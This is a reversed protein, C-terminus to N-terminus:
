GGGALDGLESPAHRGLKAYEADLAACVDAPTLARDRARLAAGIVVNRINGGPLDVAAALRDITVADLSGPSLHALWLARREVGAPLPFELVADLRRLFAHDFRAKSNSTLVAVGDFSELRTLLYNTQQNAFRDNAQKVDTRAGFMADAEDFLLICDLHEAEGLLQALNKETEGIYKSTVNAADVRLLPKGLRHALWQVALTKGTGSAGTLLAKVGPHARARVAVGLGDLLSERRRCREVLLDIERALSPPMVLADDAIDTNLRQALAGFRRAARDFEAAVATEIRGADVDGRATSPWLIAATRNLTGIGARWRRALDRAAASGSKATVGLVEAREDARPLSPKWEQWEGTGTQLDAEPSAAVLLPGRYHRWPPLAIREGPPSDIVLLPVHRSAILWPELGAPVTAGAGVIEIPTLGAQDAALIALSRAEDVDGSRVVFTSPRRGTLSPLFRSLDRHWAAPLLWDPVAASRVTADDFRLAAPPCTDSEFLHPLLSPHLSLTRHIIAGEDRSLRFTASDVGIGAVLAGLRRREAEAAGGDLITWLRAVLGLTPRMQGAAGPSSQLRQLQEIVHADHEALLALQGAVLELDTLSLANALRIWARESAGPQRRRAAILSEWSEPLRVPARSSSALQTLALRLLGSVSTDIAVDVVANM